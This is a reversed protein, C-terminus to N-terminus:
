QKLNQNSQCKNVESPLSPNDLISYERFDIDPGFEEEPLENLMANVQLLTCKIAAYYPLM